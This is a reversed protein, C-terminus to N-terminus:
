VVLANVIEDTADASDDARVLLLRISNPDATEPLAILLWDGNEPPQILADFFPDKSGTPTIRLQYSGGELDVSDDGDGPMAEGYDVGVFQPTATALDAGEGTVYVDFSEANPAANLVRVRADDSTLSKNYPDRIVLLQAGGGDAPLAILTYRNGREPSLELSDLEVDTDATRLSFTYAETDVDFYQTAEKYPVDSVASEATGNRTLTVNPGDPVAHVFRVKPDAVDARDDLDDDDSGGCAALVGLSVMSALLLRRNKSEIM